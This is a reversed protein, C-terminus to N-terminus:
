RTPTEKWRWKGLPFMNQTNGICLKLLLVEWRGQGGENEDEIRRKERIANLSM